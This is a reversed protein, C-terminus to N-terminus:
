HERLGHAALGERLERWLLMLHKIEQRLARVVARDCRLESEAPRQDLGVDLADLLLELNMRSEFRRSKLDSRILIAKETDLKAPERRPVALREKAPEKGVLLVSFVDRGLRELPAFAAISEGLVYGSQRRVWFLV